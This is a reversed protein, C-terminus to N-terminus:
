DLINLSCSILYRKYLFRYLISLLEYDLDIDLAEHLICLSELHIIRIRMIRSFYIVIFVVFLYVIASLLNKSWM